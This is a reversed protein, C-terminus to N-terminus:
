EVKVQGKEIIRGVLNKASTKIKIQDGIQGESEAIGSLIIEIAGESVIVKVTDGKKIAKEVVLMERTLISGATLARNAQRGILEETSLLKDILFTVEKLEEKIDESTIRSSQAIWKNLVAVKKYTKWTGSLWGLTTSSESKLPVLFSGKQSRFLSESFIFQFKPNSPMQTVQIEYICEACQTTLYNNVKRIAEEKSLAKSFKVEFGENLKLSINDKHEKVAQLLSEKSLKELKVKKLFEIDENTGSKLVVIDFLNYTDKQTVEIEAPISVEIKAFVNLAFLLSFIFVM